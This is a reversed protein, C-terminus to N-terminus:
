YTPMRPDVERAWANIGGDLNILNRFGVQKLYAGVRQSRVGHHCILVLEADPNLENLARMIQSMPILKSNEIRCIQYEWPERVDVLLPPQQTSELYSKLQRASLNRM